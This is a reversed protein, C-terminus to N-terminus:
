GSPHEFTLSLCDGDEPITDCVKLMKHTDLGTDYTDVDPLVHMCVYWTDQQVKTSSGLVSSEIIDLLPHVDLGVELRWAQLISRGGWSSGWPKGEGEWVARQEPDAVCSPQHGLSNFFFRFILLIIQLQDKPVM